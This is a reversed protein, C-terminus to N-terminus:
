GAQYDRWLRAQAEKEEDTMRADEEAWQQFLAATPKLTGSIPPSPTNDQVQWDRVRRRMEEIPNVAPLHDNLLKRLVEEPALGSQMAADSLRAEEIPTLNILLSMAAGEPLQNLLSISTSKHIVENYCTGVQISSSRSEISIKM